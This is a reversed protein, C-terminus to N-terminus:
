TLSTLAVKLGLITPPCEVNAKVEREKGIGEMGKEREKGQRGRYRGAGKKARSASTRVTM